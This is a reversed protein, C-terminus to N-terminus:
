VDLGAPLRLHAAAPVPLCHASAIQLPRSSAALLVSAALTATCLLHLVKMGTWASGSSTVCCTRRQSQQQASRTQTRLGVHCGPM